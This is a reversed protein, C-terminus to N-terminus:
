DVWRGEFFESFTGDYYYTNLRLWGDKQSTWLEVDFKHIYVEISEGESNEGVLVDPYEYYRNMLYKLQHVDDFDITVFTSDYQNLVNALYVKVKGPNNM